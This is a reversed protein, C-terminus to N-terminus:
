NSFYFGPGGSVAWAMGSRMFVAQVSLLYEYVVGLITEIDNAQQFTLQSATSPVDPAAQGLEITDRLKQVNSLYQNLQTSTPVDTEDWLTDLEPKPEPEPEPDPDPTPM